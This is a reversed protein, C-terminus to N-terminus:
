VLSSSAISVASFGFHIVIHVQKLPKREKTVKIEKKM